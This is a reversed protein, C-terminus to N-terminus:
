KSPTERDCYKMEVSEDNLIYKKFNTLLSDPDDRGYEKAPNGIIVEDVSKFFIQSPIVDKHQHEFTHCEGNVYKTIITTTTGLDIGINM